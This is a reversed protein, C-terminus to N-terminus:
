LHGHMLLPCGSKLTLASYIIGKSVGLKMSLVKYGLSINEAFTKKQNCGTPDKIKLFYLIRRVNNIIILYRYRDLGLQLPEKRYPGNYLECLFFPLFSFLPPPPIDVPSCLFGFLTALYLVQVTIILRLICVPRMWCRNSFAAAQKFMWWGAWTAPSGDSGESDTLRRSSRSYQSLNVSAGTQGCWLRM